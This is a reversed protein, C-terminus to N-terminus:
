PTCVLQITASDQCSGDSVRLVVAFTGAVNCTFTAGSASPNSLVGGTTATLWAASMPNPGGDGDHAAATLSITGGVRVEGPIATLEDIVPCVDITTTVGAFGSCTLPIQLTAMMSGNVNFTLAGQCFSEGDSATGRVRINYGQGKPLDQFTATVNSSAGVALSGSRSFGNPGTLMYDVSTLTVGGGLDLQFRVTSSAPADEQGSCGTAGAGITSAACLLIAAARTHWNRSRTPREIM